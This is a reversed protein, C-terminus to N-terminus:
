KLTITILGGIATSVANVKGGGQLHLTKIYNTFDKAFQSPKYSKGKANKLPIRVGPFRIIKAGDRPDDYSLANSEDTLWSQIESALNDGTSAINFFDYEDTELNVIVKVNRGIEHIEGFKANINNLLNLIEGKSSAKKFTSGIWVLPDNVNVPNDGDIITTGFLEQTFADYMKSTINISTGYSGKKVEALELELYIDAGSYDIITSKVDSVALGNLANETEAAKVAALFDIVYAGKELLLEQFKATAYRQKPDKEYVDRPDQDSLTLPIVMIRPKSPKSTQCFSIASCSLILLFLFKYKIRIM